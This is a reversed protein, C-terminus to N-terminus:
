YCLDGIGWEGEESKSQACCKNNFTGSSFKCLEGNPARHENCHKEQYDKTDSKWTGPCGSCGANQNIRVGFRTGTFTNWKCGKSKVEECTDKDLREECDRNNVVPGYHYKNKKEKLGLEVFVNDLAPGTTYMHHRAFARTSHRTARTLTLLPCSTQSETNNPGRPSHCANPSWVHVPCVNDAPVYTVM